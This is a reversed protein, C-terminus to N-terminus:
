SVQDSVPGGIKESLTLFKKVEQHVLADFGEIVPPLSTSLAATPGTQPTSSPAITAGRQTLPTIAGNTEPTSGSPIAAM